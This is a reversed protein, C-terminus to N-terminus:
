ESPYFVPTTFFASRRRHLNATQRIIVPFESGIARIVAADYREDTSFFIRNKVPIGFFNALDSRIIYAKSFFKFAFRMQRAINAETGYKFYRLDVM